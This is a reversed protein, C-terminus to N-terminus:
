SHFWQYIFERDGLKNKHGAKILEFVRATNSAGKELAERYPVRSFTVMEYQSKFFDPYLECLEHEVEKYELFEEDGVKDSMETFNQIALDAIADANTKRRKQYADMAKDWDDGFEELCEDMVVCDEFACNMGQGYFPVVAHCADGILTAAGKNWPYCRVTVLSGTPNEKYDKVLDPMLPVADAFHTNFFNLIEQDTQLSDISNPGEYSQFLTCTFTKDPNPLAIMMFEGRPWIHLSNEDIAFEGNVPEICLEKYGVRLYDQSYNFQPTRMMKNRVASFAGDAGIIADSRVEITKGNVDKFWAISNELDIKSCKMNFHLTVDENEDALELLQINLHARSVSNIYQGDKGYPQYALEGETSHMMRGRMPIANKLIEQGLGVKELAHIGRTSLALNISKGAPINANRMDPRREYIDVKYGRKALYVAMLSGALGGGVLTINKM